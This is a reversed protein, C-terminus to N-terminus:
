RTLYARADPVRSAWRWAIEGLRVDNVLLVSGIVIVLGAVMGATLPEGLFIAGWGMGFLPLLYTVTSTKTPGVAAVLHFYLVYAVATSLVALALLALAAPRTAHAHPLRWLAPAALWALAGIQQGLALTSAPVGALRRKAYVGALAYSCTAVLIAGISLITGATMTIPSWGVLVGVGVVGLLLGAARRPTMREGLWVAAFLAGWLPVTANLMAALSATLRLEATGVLTFPLAANLAGLVLLERARVRLAPRQGLARMGGWLLLAALAVRGAALPLPGLAPAAVRIFLFSGGWLAALTFLAALEKPRM